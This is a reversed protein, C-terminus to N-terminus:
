QGAELRWRTEGDWARWGSDEWFTDLGSPTHAMISDDDYRVNVYAGTVEAVTGPYPGAPGWPGQQQVARVRQGAQWASM